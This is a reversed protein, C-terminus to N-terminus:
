ETGKEKIIYMHASRDYFAAKYFIAVRERGTEDVIYSWMQNESGKKKWGEPLEVEQFIPDSSNDTDLFKFGLAEYESRSTDHGINTPLQSSHVLEEQGAREQMPVFDNGFVSAEALMSRKDATETNTIDAM